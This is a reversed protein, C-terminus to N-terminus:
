FLSLIYWSLVLDFSSGLGKALSKNIEDVFDRDNKISYLPTDLGMNVFKNRHSLYFSVDVEPFKKSLYSKLLQM